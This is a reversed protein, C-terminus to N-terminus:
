DDEKTGKDSDSSPRDAEFLRTVVSEESTSDWNFIHEKDLYSLMDKMLRSLSTTQRQDRLRIFEAFSSQRNSPTMPVRIGLIVEEIVWGDKGLVSAEDYDIQSMTINRFNEDFEQGKAENHQSVIYLLTSCITELSQRYMTSDKQRTLNYIMTRIQTEMETAKIAM